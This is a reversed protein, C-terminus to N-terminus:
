GVRNLHNYARRKLAALGPVPKPMKSPRPDDFNYGFLNITKSFLVSIYEAIDDDYQERYDRKARVNGKFHFRTPDMEVPLSLERSIQKLDEELCEYRIFHDVLPIDGCYYAESNRTDMSLHKFVFDRFSADKPCTGIKKNWYYLSVVKDWPNRENAIVKYSHIGRFARYVNSITSHPGVNVVKDGRKVDRSIFIDDPFTVDLDETDLPLSMDGSKLQLALLVSTTTGATKMTKIHIFNYHHSVIM